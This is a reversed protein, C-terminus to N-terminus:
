PMARIPLWFLYDRVQLGLRVEFFRIFEMMALRKVRSCRFIQAATIIILRIAIVTEGIAHPLRVVVLRDIKIAVIIITRCVVRASLLFQGFARNFLVAVIARFRGTISRFHM